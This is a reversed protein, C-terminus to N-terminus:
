IPFNCPSASDAGGLRGGRGRAMDSESFRPRNLTLSRENIFDRPPPPAPSNEKSLVNEEQSGLSMLNKSHGGVTGGVFLTKGVPVIKEKSVVICLM